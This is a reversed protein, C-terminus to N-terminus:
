LHHTLPPGLFEVTWPKGFANLTALDPRGHALVEALGLFFAKADMAPVMMVLQRAPQDTINMFTHAAGGPVSVVDGASAEFRSGNVEYLYRGELVRFVETETHRHLPPVSDPPTPPKSSPSLAEPSTPPCPFM